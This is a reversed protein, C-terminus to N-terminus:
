QTGEERGRLQVQKKKGYWKRCIRKAKEIRHDKGGGICLYETCRNWWYPSVRKWQRLWIKKALRIKM